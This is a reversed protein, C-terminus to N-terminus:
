ISELFSHLREGFTLYNFERNGINWGERGIRIGEDTHTAIWEMSEAFGEPSFQNIIASKRDSFYNCIEGVPNTIM